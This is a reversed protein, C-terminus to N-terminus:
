TAQVYNGPAPLLRDQWRFKTSKVSESGAIFLRVTIGAEALIALSRIHSKVYVEVGAEVERLGNCIISKTQAILSGPIPSDQRYVLLQIRGIWIRVLKHDPTEASHGIGHSFQFYGIHANLPQFL